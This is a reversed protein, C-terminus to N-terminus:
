RCKWNMQKVFTNLFQWFHWHWYLNLFKWCHLKNELVNWLLKSIQFNAVALTNPVTACSWPRTFIQLLPFDLDFTQSDTPWFDRWWQRTPVKFLWFHCKFFGSPCFCRSFFACQRNIRCRCCTLCWRSIHSHLLLVLLFFCWQHCITM